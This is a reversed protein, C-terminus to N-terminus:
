KLWRDPNKYCEKYFKPNFLKNYCEDADDYKKCESWVQQGYEKVKTLCEETRLIKANIDEISIDETSTDETSM